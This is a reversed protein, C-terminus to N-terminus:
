VCCERIQDRDYVTSNWDLEIHPVTHAQSFDVLQGARYNDARVDWVVVGLRNLDLIDRRMQPLMEFTFAGSGDNAFYEKVIARIPRGRRADQRGWDNFCLKALDQEQDQTPLVYGHCRVALIKRGVEKLRGYARCECHSPDNQCLIDHVSVLRERLTQPQIVETHHFSLIGGM